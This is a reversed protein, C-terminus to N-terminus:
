CLKSRFCCLRRSVAGKLYGVFVVPHVSKRIGHSFVLRTFLLAILNKISQKTRSPDPNGLEVFSTQALVMRGTIDPLLANNEIFLQTHSLIREADYIMDKVEKSM